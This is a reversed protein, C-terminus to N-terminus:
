MGCHTVTLDTPNDMCIICQFEALRKPRKAEDRNRKKQAEDQQKKVFDSYSTDGDLDVLDVVEAEDFKQKPTPTRARTSKSSSSRPVKANSSEAAEEAKRKRTTPPMTTTTTPSSDTLDIVNTDRPAVRQMSRRQQRQEGFLAELSESNDGDFDSFPDPSDPFRDFWDASAQQNLPPLPLRSISSEEPLFLSPPSDPSPMRSPPDFYTGSEDFPDYDSGSIMPPLRYAVYRGEHSAVTQPPNSSNGGRHVDSLSSAM